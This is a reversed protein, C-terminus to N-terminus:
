RVSTEQTWKRALLTPVDGALLRVFLIRAAWGPSLLALLRRYAAAEPGKLGAIRVAREVEGVRHLGLASRYRWRSIFRRVYPEPFLHRDGSRMRTVVRSLVDMLLDAKRAMSGANGTSNRRWVGLREPWYACGDALALSQLLYGDAFAEFEGPFGGARALAATRYVTTNGSGFSDYRWLLDLVQERGLLGSPTSPATLPPPLLRGTEDMEASATTAYPVAPFADLLALTRELFSPLVLDDAGACYVYETDVTRLCENLTAMTGKAVPNSLLEVVPFRRAVEQIITISDDTSADDIVVVRRPALSQGCIAELAATIYHGHNRNPMIVTVSGQKRSSM